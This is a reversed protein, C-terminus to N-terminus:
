ETTEEAETTVEAETTAKAATKGFLKDARGTILMLTTTTGDVKVRKNAFNVRIIMKMDEEFRDETYRVALSTKGVRGEGILVTKFIPVRVAM